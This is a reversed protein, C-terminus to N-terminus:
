SRKLRLRFYVSVGWPHQGYAPQVATPIAYGTINAGIGTQLSSRTSLDRTYGGTFAKVRFAEPLIEDKDAVEVRGTLFDKATVPFLTEVLWANSDQHGETKHNRGWIFSTSWAEGNSRARTYHVSATMRVVDSNELAEPRTLRGASFQATWQKTPFWSVRGSFSDMRGWDINWRNENPESGHFGSAELRVGRYKVGV